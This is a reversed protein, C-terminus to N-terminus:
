PRPGHRPRGRRRRGPRSGAPGPRGSPRAAPSPECWTRVLTVDKPLDGIAVREDAWKGTSSPDTGPEADTGPAHERLIRRLHSVNGHVITRATAPPDHGWLADIIEDVGVVKGPKLALLALLGR